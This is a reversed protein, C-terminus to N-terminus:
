PFLLALFIRYRLQNLAMIKHKSIKTGEEAVGGDAVVRFFIPALTGLDTNPQYTLNSPCAEEVISLRMIISLQLSNPLPAKDDNRSEHSRRWLGHM